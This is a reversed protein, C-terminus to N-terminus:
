TYINKKKFGVYKSKFLNFSLFNGKSADIAWQQFKYHLLHMKTLSFVFYGNFKNM